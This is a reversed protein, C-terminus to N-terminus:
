ESNYPYLLKTAIVGNTQMVVLIRSCPSIAFSTAYAQPVVRVCSMTAVDYQHLAQPNKVVLYKGCPTFQMGWIDGDVDVSRLAAGSWDFLQVTSEEGVAFVSASRSLAVRCQWGEAPVCAVAEGTNVDWLRVNKERYSYTIVWGGCDSVAADRCEEHSLFRLLTLDEDYVSVGDKGKSVVVSGCAFVSYSIRAVKRVVEGGPLAVELLCDECALYCRTKCQSIAPRGYVENDVYFSFVTDFTETDFGGVHGNRSCYVCLTGCRSLSSDRVYTATYEAPCKIDAFRRALVVLVGADFATDQLRCTGELVQTGIRMEVSAPSVALATCAVEKAAAVDAECPVEVTATVGSEELVFTVDMITELATNTHHKKINQKTSLQLFQSPPCTSLLSPTPPRQKPNPFFNQRVDRHPPRRRRGQHEAAVPPRHHRARPHLDAMVPYTHHALRMVRQPYLHRTVIATSNSLAFMVVRSCPSIAFSQGTIDPIVLVCSMTAVDYQQLEACSTLLQAHSQVRVVLYKGCPTFQMGGVDSVVDIRGDVSRLAVGSWDYLHVYGSCCVAFVSASRSLAVRCQWGEAPVCAVAEGTNVDWLRANKERYSYTIVWGGCDSVAADRCEEHSLSRLLTLDEDYVSVGDKGKSVVVGGCAFVKFSSGETDVKRLVEGGPLAVELLGEVCPLYCRTKCQSIAPPGVVETDAEFSFVTNFTETDFGVVNKEHIYICLTGCRSLSMAVHGSSREFNYEAPCKIDAFRRALVVQVGADFATDQLRCTGELVQTGIRMEVSAPSVALATCAVEKAAAVKAECPVEVTATVGSEELVFTVDM